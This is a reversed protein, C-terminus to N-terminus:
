ARSRVITAFRHFDDGKVHLLHHEFFPLVRRELQLNSEVVYVSVSSTDGKDRVSGCGFSAALSELM